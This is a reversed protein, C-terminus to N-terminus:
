WNIWLHDDVTLGFFVKYGKERFTAIVDNRIAQNELGPFDRYFCKCYKAGSAKKEKIITKIRRVILRSVKCLYEGHTFERTAM